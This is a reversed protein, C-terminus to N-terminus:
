GKRLTSQDASIASVGECSGRRCSSQVTGVLRRRLLSQYENLTTGQPDGTTLPCPDDTTTRRRRQAMEHAITDYKQTSSM